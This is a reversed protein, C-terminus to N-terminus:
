GKEFDQSTRDSVDVWVIVINAASACLDSIQEATGARSFARSERHLLLTQIM